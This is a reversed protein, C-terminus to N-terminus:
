DYYSKLIDLLIDGTAAFEEDTETDAAEQAAISTGAMYRSLKQGM